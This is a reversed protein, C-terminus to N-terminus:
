QKDGKERGQMPLQAPCSLKTPDYYVPYLYVPAAVLPTQVPQAEQAKQMKKRCIEALRKARAKELKKDIIPTAITAALMLIMCLWGAPSQMFSIFSGLFPIREGRYIARMQSYHVPFRDATEVNDGQTRFYRESPHEANPEEIEVIRHVVLIDEMEYVIIDYLKLDFEDPIKYTLIVDFTDFQEDLGNEFLYENKEHKKSMSGSNVVKLTPIEEFYKESSVNVYVSFLFACAFVVCFLVSILTDLVNGKKKRKKAYEKIIKEDDAGHYVLRLSMKTLSVIVAVSVTVMLVYVIACLILIYTGHTM